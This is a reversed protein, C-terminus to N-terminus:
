FCFDYYEDREGIRIISSGLYFRGDKHLRATKREANPNPTYTYEQSESMGNKDIRTATDQQLVVEKVEGKRTGTKFRIIDVVTYAHRDSYCCETAGMGVTPEQSKTNATLINTMSGMGHTKM